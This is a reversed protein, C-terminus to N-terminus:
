SAHRVEPLHVDDNAAAHVVSAPLKQGKHGHAILYTLDRRENKAASWHDLKSVMEAVFYNPVRRAKHPTALYDFVARMGVALRPDRRELWRLHPAMMEITVVEHRVTLAYDPRRLEGVSRLKGLDHLLYGLKALHPSWVDTPLVFRAVAEAVDLLETSHTLLGGIEAHHHRVSARCRLFPIGIVPDLLVERLFGALPEPLSTELKVLSEFAPLAAEPCRHRPLLDTARIVAASELGALSQLKLQPQDNYIAVRALVSVPAPIPPILMADQAEPWGFATLRGTADELTLQLRRQGSDGQRESYGTLLYTGFGTQHQKGALSAIPGLDDTVTVSRM